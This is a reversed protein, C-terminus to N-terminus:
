MTETDKLRPSLPVLFTSGSQRVQTMELLQEGCQATPRQLPTAYSVDSACLRGSLCYSSNIDLSLPCSSFTSHYFTPKSQFVLSALTGLPSHSATFNPKECKIGQKTKFVSMKFMKQQLSVQNILLNLFFIDKLRM